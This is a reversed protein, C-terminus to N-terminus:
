GGVPLDHKYINATFTCYNKLFQLVVEPVGRSRCSRDWDSMNMQITTLRTPTKATCLLVGFSLHLLVNM